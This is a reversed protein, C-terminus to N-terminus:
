LHVIGKAVDVEYSPLFDLLILHGSSSYNVQKAMWSESFGVGDQYSPLLDLFIGVSESIVVVSM